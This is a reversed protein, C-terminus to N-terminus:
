EIKFDASSTDEVLDSGSWIETWKEHKVAYIEGGLQNGVASVASRQAFLRTSLAFFGRNGLQCNILHPYDGLRLTTRAYFKAASCLHM